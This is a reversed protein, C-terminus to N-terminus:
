KQDNTLAELAKRRNPDPPTLLTIPQAAKGIARDLLSDISKGDPEKTTIVYYGGSEVSADGRMTEFARAIEDPDTVLRPTSRRGDKHVTM